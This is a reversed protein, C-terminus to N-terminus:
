YAAHDTLASGVILKQIETTGDPITTTRADRLYREVPYDTSLGNAGHIQVARSAVDVATECAYGKALSSLMRADAHGDAVHEAAHHTLLRSTEVGAKM